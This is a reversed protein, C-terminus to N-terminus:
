GLCGLFSWISTTPGFNKFASYTRERFNFPVNSNRYYDVIQSTIMVAFKNDNLYLWNDSRFYNEAQAHIEYKQDFFMKWVNSSGSSTNIELKEASIRQSSENKVTKQEAEGNKKKESWRDGGIKENYRTIVEKAVGSGKFRYCKLSNTRTSILYKGCPTFNYFCNNHLESNIINTISTNPHLIQQVLVKRLSIPQVTREFKKAWFNSFFIYFNKLFFIM